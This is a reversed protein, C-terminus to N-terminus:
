RRYGAGSIIEAGATTLLYVRGGKAVVVYMDGGTGNDYAMDVEGIGDEAFTLTCSESKTKQPGTGYNYVLKQSCKGDAAFKMTGVGTMQEGAITGDLGFSYNGKVAKTTSPAARLMEGLAITGEEPAMFSIRGHGIAMEVSGPEGDLAFDIRGLGTKAVDYSCESSNHEYGGNVGSNERLTLTCGGKGDFKAIGISTFKYRSALQGSYLWAWSGKITEKSYTTRSYSRGYAVLPIAAVLMLAALLLAKGRLKM